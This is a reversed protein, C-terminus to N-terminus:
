PTVLRYQGHPPHSEIRWPTPALKRRLRSVHVQLSHREWVLLDHRHTDRYVRQALRDVSYWRGAPAVFALTSLIRLETPTLTRDCQLWYDFAQGPSLGATAASELVASNPGRVKM